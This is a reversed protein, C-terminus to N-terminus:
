GAGEANRSEYSPYRKEEVVASGTRLNIRRKIGYRRDNTRYVSRALEIFRPGFDARAECDRIEDEIRWLEENVAQLEGVLTELERDCAIAQAQVTLLERLECDINMRAVAESIKAQKLKLITIRDFLEGASLPARLAPAVPTASPRAPSEGRVLAALEAAIREFLEDWNGLRAQRFLRMTPYWPSDEREDMWRWDCSYGLAVWVPVGLAGALHAVATDSTIVLDLNRIVAASDMFTGHETDFEPGFEVVPCVAAVEAIQETGAGKQLSFLRVGPVSPLPAFYRLPISRLRDAAYKPNGQWGIGVKFGADEALRKRWTEVLAEDASVYPVEAPITELTTGLIAALSMMPTQVHYEPLSEGRVIVRDVGACRSLLPALGLQCQVILSGCRKKVLAAYRIFQITDGLGQESHLLLCRDPMPSGDWLPAPHPPIRFGDCLRRWEFEHWGRDFRGMRLWTVARNLHAAAFDPKIRLAANIAALGGPVDGTVLLAIALNSHAEALDPQIQIAQRYCDIAQRYDQKSFWVLGLDNHAAAFDARAELVAKIGAIAEDYRGALRMQEALRLLAESTDKGQSQASQLIPLAEDGRGEEALAKGLSTRAVVLDPKLRLAERFQAIAEATRHQALLTVGLNHRGHAYDPKAALIANFVEVAESLKGQDRLVNGLNNAAKFHDPKLRLTQRYGEVAENLRGLDRCGNALNYHIEPSDPMNAAAARFQQIAEEPKGQASLANGWNYHPEASRPDLKAAQEFCAIAEDFRKMRANAVGLQNPVAADRSGLEVAKQLWERAAATDNRQLAMRGLRELAERNKPDADLARRYWREADQWNGADFYGRAKTLEEM